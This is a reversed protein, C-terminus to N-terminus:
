GLNTRMYTLTRKYYELFQPNLMSLIKSDDFVMPPLNRTTTVEFFKDWSVLTELEGLVKNTKLIEQFELLLDKSTKNKNVFFYLGQEKLFELLLRTKGVRRLGYLAIVFLKKQSLEELTRLEKLETERDIFRMINM